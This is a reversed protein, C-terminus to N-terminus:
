VGLAAEAEALRDDWYRLRRERPGRGGSRPLRRAGDFQERAVVLRIRDVNEQSRQVRYAYSTMHQYVDHFTTTM